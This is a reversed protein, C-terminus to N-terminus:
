PHTRLWSEELGKRLTRLGRQLLGAVSAASRNMHEGIEVLKRGQLHRLEVATRQDQPLMALSDALRVLREQREIRGSPSTQDDALIAELRASSQEISAELSRERQGGHPNSYKRAADILTHALLTRLWAARQADDRGQFSHRKEYAKLLTQQVIDSPDLKAKCGTTSRRAPSSCCTAASHRWAGPSSTAM